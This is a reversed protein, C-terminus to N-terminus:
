FGRWSIRFSLLATVKLAPQWHPSHAGAPHGRALLALTELSLCAPRPFTGPYTHLGWEAQEVLSSPGQTRESGEVSPAPPKRSTSALPSEQLALHSAEAPLQEHYSQRLAPTLAAPGM